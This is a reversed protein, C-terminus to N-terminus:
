INPLGKEYIVICCGTQKFKKVYIKKKKKILSGGSGGRGGGSGAGNEPHVTNKNKGRYKGSSQGGHPAAEV